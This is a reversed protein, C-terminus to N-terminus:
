AVIGIEIEQCGANDGLEVGEAALQGLDIERAAVHRAEVAAAPSNSSSPRGVDEVLEVEVHRQGPRDIVKLAVVHLGHQGMVEGAEAAAREFDALQHEGDFGLRVRREDDM